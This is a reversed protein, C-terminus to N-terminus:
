NHEWSHIGGCVSCPAYSWWGEFAQATGDPKTYNLVARYLYDTSVPITLTYIHGNVLDHEGIEVPVSVSENEDFPRLVYELAIGTVFTECIGVVTLEITSEAETTETIRAYACPDCVESKDIDIRDIQRIRLELSPTCVVKTADANRVKINVLVPDRNGM